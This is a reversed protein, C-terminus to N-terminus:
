LMSFQACLLWFGNIVRHGYLLEFRLFPPPASVVAGAISLVAILGLQETHYFRVSEKFTVQTNDVLPIQLLILAVCSGYALKQIFKKYKEQILVICHIFHDWDFLLIPKSALELRILQWEWNHIWEVHVLIWSAGNFHAWGLMFLDHVM